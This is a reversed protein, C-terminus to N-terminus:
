KVGYLRIPAASRYGEADHRELALAWRRFNACSSTSPFIVGLVYSSRFLCVPPLFSGSRTFRFAVLFAFASFVFRGLRM